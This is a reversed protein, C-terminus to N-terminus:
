FSQRVNVNSRKVALDLKSGKANTHAGIQIPFNNLIESSRRQLWQAM